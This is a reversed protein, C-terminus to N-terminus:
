NAADSCKEEVQIYLENESALATNIDLSYRLTLNGGQDTLQSVISSGSVGVTWSGYGTDYYCQHRTGNEIILQSRNSGSRIMTVRRDGEVKLTTKAGQFGTAESEEYTIYYNNNRKYFNGITMLEVVDRDGESKQVGKISIMVDKKM